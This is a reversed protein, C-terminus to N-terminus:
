PNTVASWGPQRTRGPRPGRAVAAAGLGLAVCLPSYLALDLQTYISDLGGILDIPISLAGRAILVGAVSWTAVRLFRERRGAGVAAVVAAAAGLLAAVAWILPEPPLEAGAGVVREALAQDTGGPWRWGLAWAAHIAAIMGLAIPVVIGAPRVIRYGLPLQRTDRGTGRPLKGLARGLAVVIGNAIRLWRPIRTARHLRGTAELEARDFATEVMADHWGILIPVIPRMWRSTEATLFHTLRSRDPGLAELEFGHTGSLGGEPSFEFVIRRGPEYEVVSYRIAGHGGDAGVGLPRDFLVPEAVWIDTAWLRDDASGLTDLIEGVVAVPAAIQRVHVNSIKTM